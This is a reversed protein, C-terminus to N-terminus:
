HNCTAGIGGCGSISAKGQLAANAGHTNLYGWNVANQNLSLGSAIANQISVATNCNNIIINPMSEQFFLPLDCFYAAETIGMRSWARAMTTQWAANLGSATWFSWLPGQISHPDDSRGTPPCWWPPTSQGVIVPKGYPNSNASLFNGRFWIAQDSYNYGTGGPTGPTAQECQGSFWDIGLGDVFQYTNTVAASCDPPPTKGAAAGGSWDYWYCIDTSGPFTTVRSTGLATAFVKTTPGPRIAHVATSAAVIYQAADTVSFPNSPNILQMFGYPELYVQIWYTPVVPGYRYTMAELLPLMCATYAAITVSGTTLNCLSTPPAPVYQNVTVGNPPLAFRLTYGKAVAHSVANDYVYYLSYCHPNATYNTGPPPNSDYSLTVGGPCDCPYTGGWLPAYSSDCAFAAPWPFLSQTTMGPGNPPPTAMMDMFPVVAAATIGPNAGIFSSNAPIIQGSLPIRPQVVVASTADIVKLAAGVDHLTDGLSPLITASVGTDVGDCAWGWLTCGNETAITQLTYAQAGTASLSDTATVTFTSTGVITPTGTMSGSSVLTLGTPLSGSTVAFTYPGTGGTAAFTNVTGPKESFSYYNNIPETPLALPTVVIQGFLPLSLLAFIISKVSM